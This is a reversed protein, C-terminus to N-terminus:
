FNLKLGLALLPNLIVILILQLVILTVLPAFDIGHYRPTFRRVFNITPWTINDLIMYTSYNKTRILTGLAQLFVAYFFVSFILRLIEATTAILLGVPQPIRWNLLSLVLFKVLEISIILSISVIEIGQYDPIIKKLPKIVPNTLKTLFQMLPNIREAHRWLLITRTILLFVYANITVNLIFSILDRLIAM